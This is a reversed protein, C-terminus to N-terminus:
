KSSPEPCYYERGCWKYKCESCFDGEFPLKCYTCKIINNRRLDMKKLDEILRNNACLSIKNCLTDVFRNDIM